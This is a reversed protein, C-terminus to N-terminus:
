EEGESVRQRQEWLEVASVLGAEAPSEDRYLSTQQHAELLAEEVGVLL